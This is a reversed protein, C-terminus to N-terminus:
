VWKLATNLTRGVGLQAFCTCKGWDPHLDVSKRYV